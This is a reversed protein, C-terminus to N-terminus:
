STGADRRAQWHPPLISGRKWSRAGALHAAGWGAALGAGCVHASWVGTSTSCSSTRTWSTTCPGWMRALCVRCFSITPRTAYLRCHSVYLYDEVVHCIVHRPGASTPHDMRGNDLQLGACSCVRCARRPALAAPGACSGMFLPRCLVATDIVKSRQM